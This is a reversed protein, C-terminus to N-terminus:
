DIEIIDKGKELIVDEITGQAILSDYTECLWEETPTQIETKLTFTQVPAPKPGSALANDAEGAGEEETTPDGEFSQRWPQITMESMPTVSFIPSDVYKVHVPNSKSDSIRRMWGADHTAQKWWMRPDYNSTMIVKLPCIWTGGQKGKEEGLFGHNDVDLLHKWQEAPLLSDPMVDDLIICQHKLPDYGDWWKNSPDKWYIASKDPWAKNRCWTSKGTGAKGWLILCQRRATVQHARQLTLEMNRATRYHEFGRYYKIYAAGSTPSEALTVPSAGGKIADVVSSIDSRSGQGPADRGWELITGVPQKSCYDWNAKRSGRAIELHTAPLCEKLYLFTRKRSCEWYCQWHLYGGKGM